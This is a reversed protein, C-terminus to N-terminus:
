LEPIQYGGFELEVYKALCLAVDERGPRTVIQVGIPLDEPSTGARVVVSPWGTLNYTITYTFGTLDDMEPGHPRAPGSNVPCLIADHDSMFSHMSSRFSYWQAILADLEKANIAKRRGPPTISFETTGAKKALRSIAAGGDWLYLSFLDLTQDIGTPRVQTVEEVVKSLSEAVSTVTHQTEVTPSIIGNDTHFSVKLKSLDVHQWNYWPLPVVGPDIGDPGAIVELLLFLDDVSRALPGLQQFSDQLGGFPYIHGTRPVRGSSPKIGAIGCFHSPLRISGGYDSGIDFPTGGAAIMAAAGGSSGGPSRKLDYPNNTMGYILNNTEFSLTFEPTNTKGLLVAGANKLRAVVTADKDPIFAARGKTGGTTIVGATDLSDKITMPVGHLPGWIEGKTLAADADLALAIASKRQIQFVANLDENVDEIRKICSEVVDVSSVQRNRIAKALASTTSYHLPDTLPFESSSGSVSPKCGPLAMVATGTGLITLLERRSISSSNQKTVNNASFPRNLNKM